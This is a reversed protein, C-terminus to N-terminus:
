QATPRLILESCCFQHYLLLMRWWVAAVFSIEIFADPEPILDDSNPRDECSM